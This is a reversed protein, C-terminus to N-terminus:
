PQLCAMSFLCNFVCKERECRCVSMIHQKKTGMGLKYVGVIVIL